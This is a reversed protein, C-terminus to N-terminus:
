KLRIVVSSGALDHIARHRPNFNITVFSIWGLLCKVIIRMYAQFINIRENPNRANRVRIGIVYQGLTASYTILVPEYVLAFFVCLSVMVTQRAESEDLLIMSVIMLSCWLIFDILVSQYRKVLLPYRYVEDGVRFQEPPLPLAPPPSWNIVDPVETGETPPPTTSPPRHRLLMLILAAYLFAISLFGLGFGEFAMTGTLLPLLALLVIAIWPAWRYGAFFLLIPAAVLLTEIAIESAMIINENQSVFFLLLQTLVLLALTTLASKM